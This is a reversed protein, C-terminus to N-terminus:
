NIRKKPNRERDKLLFSKIGKRKDSHRYQICSLCTVRDWRDSMQVYFAQTRNCLAKGTQPDRYHIKPESM